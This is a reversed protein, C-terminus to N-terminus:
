IAAALPKDADQDALGNLRELLDLGDTTYEVGDCTGIGNRQRARSRTKRERWAARRAAPSRSSNIRMLM